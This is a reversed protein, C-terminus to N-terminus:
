PQGDSRAELKLEISRSTSFLKPRSLSQWCGAVAVYPEPLHVLGKWIVTDFARISDNGQAEHFAGHLDEYDLLAYVEVGSGMASSVKASRADRSAFPTKGFAM